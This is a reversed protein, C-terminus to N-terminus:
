LDNEESIEACVSLIEEAVDNLQHIVEDYRFRIVHCGQDELWTTRTQDYEEQNLHSSGDIEVVLRVEACYFDAIFPGIPHQRRFKYGWLKRNRLFQWLMGEAPTQSKRLQHARKRIEPHIPQRNKPPM